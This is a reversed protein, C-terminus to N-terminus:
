KPHPLTNNVTLTEIKKVCSRPINMVDNTQGNEDLNQALSVVNRTSPMRFGASVITLLTQDERARKKWGSNSSSDLWTVRQMKM